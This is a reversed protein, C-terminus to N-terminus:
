LDTNKNSISQILKQSQIISQQTEAQQREAYEMANRFAQLETEMDRKALNIALDTDTVRKGSLYVEATFGADTDSHSFFLASTAALLAVSAAATWISRPIRLRRKDHSLAAELGMYRRCQDLLPTHIDSFALVRALEAEEHRELRCDFFAAALSELEENTLNKPDTNM